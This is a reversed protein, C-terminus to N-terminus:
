NTRLHIKGHWITCRFMIYKYYLGMSKMSEAYKLITYYRFKNNEIKKEVNVSVVGIDKKYLGLPDLKLINWLSVM